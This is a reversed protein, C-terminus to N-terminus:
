VKASEISLGSPFTKCKNLVFKDMSLISDLMAGLNWVETQSQYPLTTNPFKRMNFDSGFVMIETKDQNLKLFNTNMFHKVDLVCKEISACISGIGHSPELVTYLQSDDAYFHSNIGHKAIIDVLPAMYPTFLIQGLM